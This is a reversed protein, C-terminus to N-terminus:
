FVCNKFDRIPQLEQFKMCKWLAPELRESDGYEDYVRSVYWWIEPTHYADISTEICGELLLKLQAVAASRDKENAFTDATRVDTTAAVTAPPPISNSSFPGKSTASLIHKHKDLTEVHESDDPYVLKAFGIIADINLPDFSLVLQFESMAVHTDTSLSLYGRAININLNTFVQTVSKAEDIAEAANELDNAQLFLRSTFFWIFQLLYEKSEKHKPGLRLEDKSNPPDAPKPFLAAYLQYVESLMELADKVGIMEKVLLLQTLKLHVFQWRDAISLKCNDLAEGMADLVSCVIKFSTEKDEQISECLALLHWSRYDKPNRNLINNKLFKICMDINRRSALVFAYEFYLDLDPAKLAMANALYYTLRCDLLQNLATQEYHYFLHWANSLVDALTPPVVLRTLNLSWDVSKEKPIIPIHYHEYFDNLYEKLKSFARSRNFIQGIEEPVSDQKLIYTYADILSVMDYYESSNLDHRLETYTIFNVFNLLALRHQGVRTYYVLSSKSISVSQFTAAASDILFKDWELSPHEDIRRFHYQLIRHLEELEASNPEEASPFKTRSLLRKGYDVLQHEISETQNIVGVLYTLPTDGYYEVLRDWSYPIRVAVNELYYWAVAHSEKPVVPLCPLVDPLTRLDANANYYFNELLLLRWFDPFEGIMDSYAHLRSFMEVSAAENDLKFNLIGRINTFIAKQLGCDVKDELADAEELLVKFVSGDDADGGMEHYSVRNHLRLLSDLVSDGSNFASTGVLRADLAKAIRDM